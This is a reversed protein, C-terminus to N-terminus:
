PCSGLGSVGEEKLQSCIAPLLEEMPNELPKGGVLVYPVGPHDPTAKASRIELEHGRTEFCEQVAASDGAYTICYQMLDSSSMDPDDLNPGEVCEMFEVAADLGMEELVCTEYIDLEGERIGHQYIATGGFCAEENDATSLICKQYWCRREESSYMPGSGCTETAFYANGWAVFQYDLYPHLEDTSWIDKWTKTVFKRCFPCEAEGYFRIAVSPSAATQVLILAGVLLSFNSTM